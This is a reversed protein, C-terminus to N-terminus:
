FWWFRGLVSQILRADQRQMFLRKSEEEDSSSGVEEAGRAAGLQEQAEDKVAVISSPMVM